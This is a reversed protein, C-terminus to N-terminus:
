MMVRGDTAAGHLQAIIARGTPPSIFRMRPCPTASVQLGHRAALRVLHDARARTRLLLGGVVFCDAPRRDLTISIHRM